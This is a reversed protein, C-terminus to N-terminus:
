ASTPPITQWSQEMEYLRWTQTVQVGLESLWNLCWPSMINLLLLHSPLEMWWLRQFSAFSSALEHMGSKSTVILSLGVHVSSGMSHISLSYVSPLWLRCSSLPCHRHCAVLDFIHMIVVTLSDFAQLPYSYEEVKIESSYTSEFGAPDLRHWVQLSLSDDCLACTAPHQM